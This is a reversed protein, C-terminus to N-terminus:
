LEELIEVIKKATETKKCHRFEVGYRETMTQMAKALITGQIVKKGAQPRSKWIEVPIEEEVLIILSIQANQARVCEWRFREHQTGCINSALERWNKKTDICVTQNDLRAYDGVYLKNRIVEYGMQRLDANLQKHKGLQNRTDEVIIM